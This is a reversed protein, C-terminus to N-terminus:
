EGVLGALAQFSGAFLGITVTWFLAAWLCELVVKQWNIKSLPPLADGGQRRKGISEVILRFGNFWFRVAYDLVHRMQDTHESSGILTSYLVSGMFIAITRSLFPIWFLFGVVTWVGLTLVSVVAYIGEEFYFSATRSTTDM